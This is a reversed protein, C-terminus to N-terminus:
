TGSAAYGLTQSLARAPCRAAGSTRTDCDTPWARPHREQQPLRFSPPPLRADAHQGGASRPDPRLALVERSCAHLLNTANRTHTLALGDELIAADEVDAIDDPAGSEFWSKRPEVEVHMAVEFWFM